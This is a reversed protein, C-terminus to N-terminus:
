AAPPSIEPDQRWSELLLAVFTMFAVVLGFLVGFVYVSSSAFCCANAVLAIVVTVQFVVVVPNRFQASAAAIHSAQQRRYTTIGVTYAALLGSALRWVASPDIADVLLFPLFSFVIAAGSATLLIRLRLQDHDNWHGAGRRGVAAVIGSFGALSIAVEIASELASEWHM